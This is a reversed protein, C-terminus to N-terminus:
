RGVIQTSMARGRAQWIFPARLSILESYSAGATYGYSRSPILQNQVFSELFSAQPGGGTNVAVTELGFSGMFFEEADNAVVVQGPLVSSNQGSSPGLGVATNGYTSNIKRDSWWHPTLFNFMGNQNWGNSPDMQLGLSQRGQFAEIGRRAACEADDCWDAQRPVQTVPSSTSILVRFDQGNGEGKVDGINIVFTSWKGDNGDWRGSPALVHPLPVISANVNDARSTLFM